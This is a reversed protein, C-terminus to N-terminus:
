PSVEAPPCCKGGSEIWYRTLAAILAEARDDCATWIGFGVFVDQVKDFAFNVADRGIDGIGAEYLAHYKKDEPTM